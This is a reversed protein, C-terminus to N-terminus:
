VRGTTSFSAVSYALSKGQQFGVTYIVVVVKLREEQKYTIKFKEVWTKSGLNRESNCKKEGNLNEVCM